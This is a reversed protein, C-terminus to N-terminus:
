SSFAFFSDINENLKLSIKTENCNPMVIDQANINNLINNFVKRMKPTLEMITHLDIDLNGYKNKRIMGHARSLERFIMLDDRYNNYDLRFPEFTLYFINRAIMKTIDMMRKVDPCLKETNNNVLEEIKSVYKQIENRQTEKIEYQDSLEKIQKKLNNKKEIEKATYKKRKKTKRMRHLKYLATKLYRRLQEVEKHAAKYEGSIYEKDELLDKIEHYDFYDYSTIQDIGFHDILYKFDNEQIWRNFMCFVIENGNRHIDDTLISVETYKKEKYRSIRVILQRIKSNQAWQNQQYEYNIFYNDDKNNRYRVISGKYTTAQKDWKDNKYDKEWTILHLNDTNIVQDFVEQSFIGRDVIYTLTKEQPINGIERFEETQRFFRVRMDDYNDDVGIYVPYGKSTHIFDMNVVKGPMKIKACWGKLIKRMGTYHKTHPDYYYDQCNAVDVIEMNFALLKNINDDNTHKKITARQLKQSKISKDIIMNLSAYNIQKTQEINKAGLLISILWQLIFEIGKKRLKKFFPAFILIGLHYCYGEGQPMKKIIDDQSNTENLCENESCQSDCEGCLIDIIENSNNNDKEQSVIPNKALM